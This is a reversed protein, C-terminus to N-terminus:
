FIDRAKEPLECLESDSKSFSSFWNKMIEQITPADEVPTLIQVSPDLISTYGDKGGLLFHKVGMTYFQDEM